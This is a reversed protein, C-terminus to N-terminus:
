SSMHLSKRHSDDGQDSVVGRRGAEERLAGDDAIPDHQRKDILVLDVTALLKVIYTSGESGSACVTFMLCTKSLWLMANLYISYLEGRVFM